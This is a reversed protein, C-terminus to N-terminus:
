DAVAATRRGNSTTFLRLHPNNADKRSSERTRCLLSRIRGRLEQTGENPTVCLGTSYGPILRPDFSSTIEDSRPKFPNQVGSLAPVRPILEDVKAAVREAVPENLEDMQIGSYRDMLMRHKAMKDNIDRLTGRMEKFSSAYPLEYDLIRDLRSEVDRMKRRTSIRERVDTELELKSIRSGSRTPEFGTRPTSAGSGISHARETTPRPALSGSRVPSTRPSTLFRPTVSRVFRSHVLPGRPLKEHLPRTDRAFAELASIENMVIPTTSVNPPLPPVSAMPPLHPSRHRDRLISGQRLDRPPMGRLGTETQPSPSGERPAINFPHVGLSSRRAPLENNSSHFNRVRYCSIIACKLFWISSAKLLLHFPTRYLSTLAPRYAIHLFLFQLMPLHSSVNIIADTILSGERNARPIMPPLGLSGRRVTSVPIKIAADFKRLADKDKTKAKQRIADCSDLFESTAQRARNRIKEMADEDVNVEFPSVSRLSRKPTSRTNLRRRPLELDLEETDFDSYDDYVFPEM